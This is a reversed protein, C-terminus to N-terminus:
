AGSGAQGNGPQESQQVMDADDCAVGFVGALAGMLFISMIKKVIWM